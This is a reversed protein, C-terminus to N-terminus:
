EELVERAAGAATGNPFEHATSGISHSFVVNHAKRKRSVLADPAKSM